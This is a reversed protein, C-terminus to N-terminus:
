QRENKYQRIEELLQRRARALLTSVSSEKMGLLAAIQANPRCEVQRMHLVAHQTPPLNRIREQLWQEDERQIIIDLPSPSTQSMTQREDLLLPPKSRLRNLTLHRAITSAYGEPNYLRPDDRMQWLRLMTEQAIDEAADADAGATAAAQLALKRLRTANHEFADITM